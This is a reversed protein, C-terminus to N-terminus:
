LLLMPQLGDPLGRTHHPQGQKTLKFCHLDPLLQRVVSDRALFSGHNGWFAVSLDAEAALNRLWADNEPGIPDEAQKLDDPYTAGFAFLNTVCLSGYGWQQAYSICRRITPDDQSADAVSPNLGVFMVQPLSDDWSRWLAYRYLECDSFVAKGRM